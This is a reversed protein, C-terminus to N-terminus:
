PDIYIRNKTKYIFLMQTNKYFYNFATLLWILKKVIEIIKNIGITDGRVVVKKCIRYPIM